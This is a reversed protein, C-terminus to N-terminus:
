GDKSEKKIKAKKRQYTSPDASTGAEIAAAESKFERINGKPTRIFDGKYYLRWRGYAPIVEVHDMMTVKQPLTRIHETRLVKLLEDSIPRKGEYHPLSKIRLLAEIKIDEELNNLIIPTLPDPYDLPALRVLQSFQLSYAYEAVANEIDFELQKLTLEISM